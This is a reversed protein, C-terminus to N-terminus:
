VVIMRPISNAAEASIASMTLYIRFGFISIRLLTNRCEGFCLADARRPIERLSVFNLCFVFKEFCLFCFNVKENTNKM